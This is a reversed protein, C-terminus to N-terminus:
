LNKKKQIELKCINGLHRLLLEQKGLLLLLQHSLFGILFFNIFTYTFWDKYFSFRFNKIWCFIILAAAGGRLPQGTSVLAKTPYLLCLFNVNIQQKFHVSFM